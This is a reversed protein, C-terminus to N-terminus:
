LINELGYVLESLETVKECCLVIGPMFAQRHISDHRITLTESDGGFIVEQSAVFGSLRVAHIPIDKNNAGRAGALTEKNTLEAPKIQRGAAIMESTKIATGSPSDKKKDHHFEIIEANPLYAAAQQAFRMMLIAGISFNPAIIGGLKKSQCEKQLTQIQDPSFGTTGIVPHVGAAIITATNDFAAAPETLDVAVQAECERLQQALDDGRSGKGVLTLRPANNIADVAECGMKGNAGNIFVKITM